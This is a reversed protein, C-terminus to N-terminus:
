ETTFKYITTQKYEQGPKLLSSPFTHQNPTDPYHQAELCFGYQKKYNTGGHGKNTGDLFNGTYFQIGPETTLVELRRGSKPEFVKAASILKADLNNLVFNHDYGGDVLNITEGIETYKRLDLPSSDVKRIEGTPILENNSVTYSDANIMIQHGHINENCATLNFYAHNTLNVHTTKDTKATYVMKLENDNSLTYCVTVDLNGPYGEEMDKSRYTLEIGVETTTKIEKFDWIVKDFGILGGHLTNSGNNIALQYEKGELKFKGKAIRNAFRGVICGFYPHGNIYDELKDFGLTVDEVNGIKDPMLISCIIGGFNTIKITLNNDNSLSFLYVDKNEHKGFVSKTLIM